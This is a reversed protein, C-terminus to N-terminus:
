SKGSKHRITKPGCQFGHMHTGVHSYIYIYVCVRMYIYIYTNMGFHFIVKNYKKINRSLEM